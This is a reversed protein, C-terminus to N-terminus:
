LRVEPSSDPRVSVPPASPSCSYLFFLVFMLMTFVLRLTGIAIHTGILHPGESHPAWSSLATFSDQLVKVGWKLAAAVSM